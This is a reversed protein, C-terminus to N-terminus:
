LESVHNIYDLNWNGIDADEGRGGKIGDRGLTYLKYKSTAGYLQRPKEYIYSRGWPDEPLSDLYSSIKADPRSNNALLLSQLGPTTPPFAQNDTRYQELAQILTNLQSRVAMLKPNSEDVPGIGLQSQLASAPNDTCFIAWAEASPEIIARDNRVLFRRYGAGEGWPGIANVAGCVVNGPYTTIDRYDVTDKHALQSEVATKTDRASTACGALTVIVAFALFCRTL